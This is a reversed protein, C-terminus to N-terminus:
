GWRPQADLDLGLTIKSVLEHTLMSNAPHIKGMRSDRFLRELESHRSVGFGGALEVAKDVARFASETVNTKLSVIKAAWGAGDMPGWSPANLVAAAYGNSVADIHPALPDLTLVLDAVGHQFEAHYALSGRSIGLSTKNKVEEIALDRAREAVGYYVNSFGVDAWAFVGLLFLDLGAAGPPVVRAIREMPVFANEFITDDSRTARMGLSDWNEQIRIGETDRTAFGHVVKPASPDTMDMAHFGLRTWVPTMTGFSKHANIRYGGNEPTAQATSLLGVLENGREAHGAAFVEGKAADELVWECSKDGARYLDAAMGTWYFHMNVAVADSPAYYALRRQQRGVEAVNLGPGGFEQPLALNLYGAEKLEDFDEQFFKNERDYGAARSRFRELMEDSLTTAPTQTATTM